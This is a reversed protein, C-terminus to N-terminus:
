LGLSKLMRGRAELEEIRKMLPICEGVDHCQLCVAKMCCRCFAGMEEELVIHAKRTLPEIHLRDVIYVTSGTGPKVRVIQNCHGCSITDYEQIQKIDGAITIQGQPRLM